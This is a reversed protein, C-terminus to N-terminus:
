QAPSIRYTSTYGMQSCLKQWGTILAPLFFLSHEPGIVLWSALRETCSDTYVTIKYAHGGCTMGEITLDTIQGDFVNLSITCHAGYAEDVVSITRVAGSDVWKGALAGLLASDLLSSVELCRLAKLFFVGLYKENM